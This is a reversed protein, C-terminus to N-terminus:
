YTGVASVTITGASWESIRARFFLFGTSYVFFLGDAPTSTVLTGSDAELAQVSYWHTGDISSEFNVTATTIGTIQLGIGTLGDCNFTVGNSNAAVQMQLFLVSQNM